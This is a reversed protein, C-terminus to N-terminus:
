KMAMVKKPNVSEGDIMIEYHLHPGTSKGTNGVYGIVDGKKVKMGEKVKFKSLHAYLTACHDDHVLYVINGYAGKEKAAKVVGSATAKVPTGKKAVFDIGPHNEEGTGGFDKSIKEIDAKELPWITPLNKKGKDQPEDSNATFSFSLLGFVMAPLILLYKLGAKKSSKKTAM